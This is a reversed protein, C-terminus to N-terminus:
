SCTTVAPDCPVVCASFAQYETGTPICYAGSVDNTTPGIPSVLQACETGGPCTCYTAGDNTTGDAAACRCSWTVTMAARRDACQPEVLAGTQPDASNGIVPVDLQPTKCPGVGAPFAGGTAGDINPLETGDVSQGYPCSVRGRFHDVLCVLVGPDANADPLEVSVENARFGNFSQADEVAPTCPQGIRAGNYRNDVQGGCAAAVAVALVFWAGRKAM